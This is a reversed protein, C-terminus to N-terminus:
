LCEDMAALLKAGVERFTEEDYWGMRLYHKIDDWFRYFWHRAWFGPDVPVNELYRELMGLEPRCNALHFLDIERDAWGADLPDIVGTLEYTKPDVMMNWANYDSHTLSPRESTSRFLTGIAEYSRDVVGMVYGSVAARHPGQHIREHYRGIRAGYFQLWDAYFPGELEGFGAPNTVQHWAKLNAVARDVFRDKTREDPFQVDSARVGPVHEMLLAEGPFKGWRLQLHYVRPVQVLAHRRLVKLQRAEREGRGRHKYCKAIVQVPPGALSVRFVVAYFGEGIRDVATVAPRFLEAVLEGVPEGSGLFTLDSPPVFEDPSVESM